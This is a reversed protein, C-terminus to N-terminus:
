SSCRPRAPARQARLSGSTGPRPRPLRRAHRAARHTADWSRWWPSSATRDAVALGAERLRSHSRRRPRGSSNHAEVM